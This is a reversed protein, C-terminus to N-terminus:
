SRHISELYRMDLSMARFDQPSSGYARRFARTFDSASNFCLGYAVAAVPLHPFQVLENAAERLRLNRIYTGLGGEAEFMRYLTPRPLRFAQQVSDPTLEKMHLNAQVHSRVQALLVSKAAARAQGSLRQQKGFAALILHACNRITQAVEREDLTPLSRCLALLHGFILRTLPSSYSIVRGHIAEADPLAAEVMARPLFFALLHAYTPREMHFPQGMDLALIGPIFQTAKGSGGATTATEIIGDVAVHFVYDRISDTSIRAATRIQSVPDTRCDMYVMDKLVYSDVQAQFGTALHARSLPADMSRGVYDRWALRQLETKESAVSFHRHVFPPESPAPGPYLYRGHQNSIAAKVIESYGNVM